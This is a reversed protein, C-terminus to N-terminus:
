FFFSKILAALSILTTILYPIWIRKFDASHYILFDKGRDSIAIMYEDCNSPKNLDICVWDEECLNLRLLRSYEDSVPQPENQLKRLLHLEKPTLRIQSFDPKDM